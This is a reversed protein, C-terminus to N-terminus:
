DLYVFEDSCLLVHAYDIWAAESGRSAANQLFAKAARKEAPDPPRAFLLRYAHDIRNDDDAPIQEQLVRALERAQQLVFDHNLLFLAQPAGTSVTRKEISQDPNAADFLTSYNNRDWRTTQVYLSRRPQGIEIRAPGGPKGDLRGVVALMADRIAEVELRRPAMRGLWRNDPDKQLTEWPVTSAQQYAASLMIRRHLAKISLGDQCFRAALWDLLAPHSPASGLKGFNSPTRVIGEGFHYQWVRNVLVRATLPNDKAIIWRAMEMRGSGVKIPRQPSGAFLVPLRRAIVPGLRTYSGRIHLPVDQIGTFIGHPTGGEQAGLALPPTLLIDAQFVERQQGLRTLDELPKSWTAAFTPMGVMFAALAASLKLLQDNMSALQQLQKARQKLYAPPALPVRLLVSHDGKAGVDGLIHTSYFIGALGYYDAQSIPDFKHDHCRACGLTLGLFAKGITDIQDDVIDSVIKDKDADGHDWSGIALFTTAIQGDPYIGEVRPRPLLDGAIQHFVFQDYPMDNNLAEVVWDRYRYAEFLEFKDASGHERPNAQYYDAYRAVDLWHRAWREGYAPSALLRDVVRAFAGPSDDHLFTDVQEPTPPLGTLDFAARRLLTRKDAPAAPVIGRSELEALIFRDIPSRGWHSNGVAPPAVSRIPQFAWWRRQEPTITFEKGPKVPITESAQPWPIGLSVWRRLRAIDSDPLKGQPPMRLEGQYGVARLLLSQDPMGPVVAPVSDGGQLMEKRGVLRLGGRVKAGGHCKQCKDILLPRIEKEFYEIAASDTEGDAAQIAPQVHAYVALAAALLRSIGLISKLDM